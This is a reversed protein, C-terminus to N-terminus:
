KVINHIDETKQERPNDELHTIHKVTEIAVIKHASSYEFNTRQPYDDYSTENKRLYLGAFFIDETATLAAQKQATQTNWILFFPPFAYWSKLYFACLDHFSSNHRFKSVTRSM